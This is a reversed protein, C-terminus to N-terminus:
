QDEQHPFDPLDVTQGALGHTCDSFFQIRGDTVFSHCSTAVSEFALPADSKPCGAAYWAEYDARGKPSFDRGTVLVSPTFTPRDADGNWGWGGQGVAITHSSKCGPCYFSLRCGEGRRLKKSLDGM